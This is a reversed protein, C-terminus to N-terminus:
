DIRVRFRMFGVNNPSRNSLTPIQIFVAGNSNNPSPCPSPAPSLVPIFRGPDGDTANTQPRESGELRLLTGSGSGYTDGLFTSGAPIPDCFLANSAVGTGDSLFYVTYELDDGSQLLNAETIRALGIPSLASWGPANDNSDNPDDLFTNFSINAIPIGNRLANTMRKVIRLNPLGTFQILTPAVDDNPTGNGNADTISGATSIDTLIVGNSDTGRVTVSAFYPGLNFGPTVRVNFTITGTAGPAIINGTGLLNQLDAGNFASNVLFDSSNISVVVFGETGNFTKVLDLIAQLNSLPQSGTNTIVLTFTVTETGDRNNVPPNNAQLASGLASPILVVPPVTGPPIVIGPPLSPNPNTADTAVTTTAAASNNGTNPEPSTTSIRAIGTLSIPTDPAKFVFDYSATAGRGFSPIAACVITSATADYVCGSPVSVVTVGAPVDYSVTVNAANATGVNRATLTVTFTSGPPISPPATVGIAVDVVPPVIPPVVVPATPPTSVFTSRNNRRLLGLPDTVLDIEDPSDVEATNSLAGGVSPSTAFTVSLNRTEGIAFPVTMDCPFAAPLSVRICTAGSLSVFTAGPPAPDNIRVRTTAAANGINRVRLNYTINGGPTYSASGTKLMDLDPITAPGLVQTTAIAIVPQGPAVGQFNIGPPPTARITNTLNYPGPIAPDVTGTLTVIVRSGVGLNVSTTPPINTAGSSPNISGTGAATEDAALRIVSTFSPSILAPATTDSLTIGSIDCDGRNTVRITYTVPSGPLLAAAPTNKEIDIKVVPTLSPLTGFDGIGSAAAAGALTFSGATAIPSAPTPLNSFSAGAIVASNISFITTTVVGDYSEFYLNGDAGFALSANNPLSPSGGNFIQVRGLVSGSGADIKWLFLDTGAQQTLYIINPNTPDFAIDGSGGTILPAITFSALSASSPVTGSRTISVKYINNSSDAAYITGDASQAMKLISAPLPLAAGSLPITGKAGTVPDYFGIQPTLSLSQLYLIYGSIADRSIGVTQFLLNNSTGNVLTSAGTATDVAYLEQNGFGSAYFVNPVCATAAQAPPAFTIISFSAVLSTCTILCVMLFRLITQWPTSTKIWKNLTKFM